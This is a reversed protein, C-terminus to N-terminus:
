DGQPTNSGQLHIRRRELEKLAWERRNKMQHYANSSFWELYETPVERWKKGAHKGFSVVHNPSYEWHKRAM